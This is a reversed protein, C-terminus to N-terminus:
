YLKGTDPIVILVLLLESKLKCTGKHQFKKLKRLASVCIHKIRHHYEELDDPRNRNALKRM